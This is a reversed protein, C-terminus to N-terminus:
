GGTLESIRRRLFRREVENSTMALAKQYSALAADSRQMRRLLDARAAHYLYHEQLEDCAGAEDLLTLGRDLSFGMAVAAAHNM